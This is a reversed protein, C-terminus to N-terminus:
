TVRGRWADVTRGIAGVTALLLLLAGVAEFFYTWPNEALTVVRETSRTRIVMGGTTLGAHLHLYFAATATLIVISAGTSILRNWM